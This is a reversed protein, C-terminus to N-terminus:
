VRSARTSPPVDGCEVHLPTVAPTAQPTSESFFFAPPIAASVRNRFLPVPGTASCGLRRRVGGVAADATPLRLLRLVPSKACRQCLDDLDRGRRSRARELVAPGVEDFLDVLDIGQEPRLTPARHPDNGENILLLDDFLNQGVEAHPWGDRV